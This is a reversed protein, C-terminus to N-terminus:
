LFVLAGAEILDDLTTANSIDSLSAVLIQGQDTDLYLRAERQSVELSVLDALDARTYGLSPDQNIIITDEDLDFGIVVDAGNLIDQVSYIVRERGPGLIITDDGAGGTVEDNGNGTRIIDDGADGYMLDNGADGQLEDNGHGGILMDNGADGILLDNGTGGRFLDSLQWGIMVDDGTGGHGRAGGHTTTIIDDGDGGHIQNLGEGGDLYDNGEGGYMIDNGGDGFLADNGGGGTLRDDGNFGFLLEDNDTGVLRNVDDKDFLVNEPLVPNQVPDDAGTLYAEALKIGMDYQSSADFHIRDNFTYGDTEFITVQPHSAAFQNQIERIENLEDELFRDTTHTEELFVVDVLEGLEEMLADFFDNLNDEYTDIYRRDGGGQSWYFGELVPNGGEAIVKEVLARYDQIMVDFLEGDSSPHWDPNPGGREPTLATGSWATKLVYFDDVGNAQLSKIFGYEPGFNALQNPDEGDIARREVATYSYYIKDKVSQADPPSSGDMKGVMNSQGAFIFIKVDNTESM